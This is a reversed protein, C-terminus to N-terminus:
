QIVEYFNWGNGLYHLTKLKYNAALYLWNIMPLKDKWQDKFQQENFLIYSGPAVGKLETSYLNVIPNIVGYYKLADALYFTYITRSSNYQRIEEATENEFKNLEYIGKSYKCILGGQIILFILFIAVPSWKKQFIGHLNKFGPYLLIIVLPFSPILFRLNQYPIGSLFIYYFLLSCIILGLWLPKTSILDKKKLFIVFLIGCFIYAPYIFNSVPYFLNIVTYSEFGNDTHFGKSVFNKISWEKLWEHGLFNMSHNQHILIHPLITIILIIIGILLSGLRFNKIFVIGMYVAPFLLIVFDAYRTIISLLIFLLGFSFNRTSSDLSFRLIYYLAASIFFATLSESMDLFASRFIFPSFSYFLFVYFKIEPKNGFIIKILKYIYVASLLYSIMSVLQLSVASNRIILNLLSSILPYGVPWYFEGPFTGKLFFDTLKDTYKLYEYADQGYLGNFGSILRVIILSPILCLIFFNDANIAKFIRTETITKYNNEEFLIEKM